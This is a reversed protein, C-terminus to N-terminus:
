ESYFSITPGYADPETLYDFTLKKHPVKNPLSLQWFYLVKQAFCEYVEIEYEFPDIRSLFLDYIHITNIQLEIDKQSIKKELMDKYLETSRLYNKEIFLYQNNIEILQPDLFEMFALSQEIILTNWVYDDLSIEVNEWNKKWAQFAPLLKENIELYKM